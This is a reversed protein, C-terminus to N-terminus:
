ATNPGLTSIQTDSSFNPLSVRKDDYNVMSFTGMFGMAPKASIWSPRWARPSSVGTQNKVTNTWTVSWIRSIKHHFTSKRGGTTSGSVRQGQFGLHGGHVHHLFVQRTKLRILGHSPDFGVLKTTSLRTGYGKLRDPCENVKFDLIAAMCTTFAGILKM